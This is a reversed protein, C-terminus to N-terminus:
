FPLHNDRVQKPKLPAHKHIIEQFIEIFISYPDESKHIEGKLLTHDLEDCFINEDFSIYKLYKIIKPLLRVFTSRFITFVMKHCDSLETECIGTKQLSNPKNTFLNGRSTEFYITSKVLNSM